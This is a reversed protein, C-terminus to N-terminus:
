LQNDYPFKSLRKGTTDQVVWTDEIGVGTNLDDIILKPEIAITNGSELPVPYLNTIIPLEDLELGVGHGIFQVKDDDIGMFNRTYEFEEVFDLTENYIQVPSANKKLKSELSNMVQKAFDHAKILRNDVDGLMFTRTVDSIYGGYYGTTDIVVADGNRVKRKSGGILHMKTQGCGTFPGFQSNLTATSEGAMVLSLSTLNHNFMRVNIWGPHGEKRLFSEIETAIDVESLGPKIYNKALEFSEDTIQCSKKLLELEASSKRSRIQRLITGIDFVEAYDLSKKLYMVTKYPLIDLEAGIREIRKKSTLDKIVRYSPMPKVPLVSEREAYSLNRKVYYTIEGDEVFLMGDLGISTYYFVDPRGFIFANEFQETKEILQKHRQKYESDSINAPEM